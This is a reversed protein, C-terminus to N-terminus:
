QVIEERAQTVRGADRLSGHRTSIANCGNAQAPTGERTRQVYNRAGPSADVLCRQGRAHAPLVVLEVLWGLVIEIFSVAAIGSWKIISWVLWAAWGYEEKISM